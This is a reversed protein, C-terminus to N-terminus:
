NKEFKKEFRTCELYHYIKSLSQLKEEANNIAALLKKQKLFYKKITKDNTDPYKSKDSVEIHRKKFLNYSKHWGLIDKHYSKCVDKIKIDDSSNVCFIFVVSLLLILLYKILGM